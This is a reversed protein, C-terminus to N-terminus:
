KSHVYVSLGSLKEQPVARVAFFSLRNSRDESSVPARIKWEMSFGGTLKRWLVKRGNLQELLFKGLEAFYTSYQVDFAQRFCSESGNSSPEASPPDFPSLAPPRGDSSLVFRRHQLFAKSTWNKGPARHRRSSFNQDNM